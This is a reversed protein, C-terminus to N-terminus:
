GGMTMQVVFIDVDIAESGESTLSQGLGRSDVERGDVFLRTYSQLNGDPTLIRRALDNGHKEILADLLERVTGGDPLDMQDRTSKVADRVSGLFKIRALM